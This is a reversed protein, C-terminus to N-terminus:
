ECEAVIQKVSNCVIGADCVGSALSDLNSDLEDLERRNFAQAAFENRGGPACITCICSCWKGRLSKLFWVGAMNYKRDQGPLASLQDGDRLFERLRRTEPEYVAAHRRLRLSAQGGFTYSM